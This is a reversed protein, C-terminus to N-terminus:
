RKIAKRVATRAREPADAFSRIRGGLGTARALERTLTELEEQEGAALVDQQRLHRVRERLASVARRDMVPHACRTPQGAASDVVLALAAIERDPAALLRALYRMGVRDPVTAVQGEHTVRWRGARVLSMRAAARESTVAPPRAETAAERWRSVLGVMGAADGAAMA